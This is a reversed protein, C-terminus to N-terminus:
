RDLAAAVALDCASGREWPPLRTCPERMRADLAGAVDATEDGAIAFVREVTRSRNGQVYALISREVELAIEEADGRAARWRGRAYRPRGHADWLWLSWADPAAAVLAGSSQTLQDHFRNFHRCANTRMTWAVVRAEALAEALCRRWGEDLAMGFLFHKGAERELPQCAFAHNGNVGQRAFRFRVLEHQATRARPLQDFEFMGWQVAADPVSVHVPLFRRAIGGALERLAAALAEQAQPGPAGCFLQAALKAEALTEARWGNGAAVM